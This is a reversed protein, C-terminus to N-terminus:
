EVKDVLYGTIWFTGYSSDTSDTRVARIGLSNEEDIYMRFPQSVIYQSKTSVHRQYRLYLNHHTFFGSPFSTTTRIEAQQGSPLELEGSIFEVVLIKGTPVEDFQCFDSTSGASMSISCADVIGASAISADKTSTDKMKVPVVYFEGDAYLPTTLMFFLLTTLFTRM